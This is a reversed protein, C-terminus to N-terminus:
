LLSSLPLVRSPAPPGANPHPAAVSPTLLPDLKSKDEVKIDPALGVAGFTSPTPGPAESEAEVLRLQDPFADKPEGQDLEPDAYALLDFEDCELLDVLHKDTTELSDLNGLDDDGKDPDLDLTALDDEDEEGAEGGTGGLGKPVFPDELDPEPLDIRCPRAALPDMAHPQTTTQPLPHQSSPQPLASPANAEPTSPQLLLQNQPSPAVGPQPQQPLLGLSGTPVRMRPDRHDGQSALTPPLPPAPPPHLPQQSFTTGM